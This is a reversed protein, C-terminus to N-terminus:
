FKVNLNVGFTRTTPLTNVEMGQFNDSVAFTAEPDLNDLYKKLMAVNNCFLSVNIGKIVDTKIIRKLDYGLSITRLKFYNGKYVFPEGLNRNASYWAQAPVATTNPSGDANWGDMIVGGERGPLSKKSLGHRLANFNSNSFIVNGGKCDFQVFLSFGKYTFTHLWAATWKPVGSGYSKLEGLVPKGDSTLIRGKSDRAYDFDQVQALPKGLVHAVYGVWDGEAVRFSTQGGALEIVKSENYAGTFRTEWTLNSEVPVLTLMM